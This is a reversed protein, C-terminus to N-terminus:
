EHHGYSLQDLADPQPGSSRRNLDSRGGLFANKSYLEFLKARNEDTEVPELQSKLQRAVPAAQGVFILPKEISVSLKRDKLLLNSGLEALVRRRDELTGKEFNFKANKAFEFAKEIRKVGENIQNDTNHLLAHLRTKENLLFDMKRKYNEEDIEGKARMSILGDIEKVCDNYERQQNKLVKNRNEAEKENDQKICDMAWDYFEAPIQIDKLISLIQMELNELRITKQTCHSNLRKTCRYYTYYHVNGNKQRKIKAEATISAGCEGCKILCTYAFDHSRFPSKSRIGMIQQALDFQEKTIMSKHQGNTHLKGGYYFHGYYFPNTFIDYFKSRSMSGRDKITLGWENTAIEYLKKIPYKGTLLMEWLRKVLDFRDPDIIIDKAGKEKYKNNLYGVPAHGPMIGKEAKNRLGRKTNSSLDRIFQNAMGFEVSMMLVNDTPLYSRDYARIHKIVGQQLMWSINGGDVPNRALRDLKWCLIGTAEGNYVKQIMQNFIPRGPAKASQSESLIGIIDLKEKKALDTLEKIQSDISAVQRDEAESSKRAYLLYKIKQTDQQM